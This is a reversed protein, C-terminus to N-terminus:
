LKMLLVCLQEAVFNVNGIYDENSLINSEYKLHVFIVSYFIQQVKICSCM